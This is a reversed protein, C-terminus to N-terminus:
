TQHAHRTSSPATTTTTPPNYGPSYFDGPGHWHWPGPLHYGDEVKALGQKVADQFKRNQEKIFNSIDRKEERTVENKWVDALIRSVAARQLKFNGKVKYQRAHRDKAMEQTEPLSCFWTWGSKMSSDVGCCVFRLLLTMNDDTALMCSRRNMM